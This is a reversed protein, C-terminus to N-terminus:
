PAEDAGIDFRTGRPRADGEFDTAPGLGVADKAPSTATIHYDRGVRDVFQPDVNTIGPAPGNSVISSLFTCPGAADRIASACTEQLIISSTVHLNANCSVACPASTSQAGADVITSFELEGLGQSLELARQATGFILLNKLHVKAGAAAVNIGVAGGSIVGGDVTLEGNSNVIVAATGLSSSIRLNRATVPGVVSLEKAAMLTVSELTLGNGGGIIAAGTTPGSLTVERVTLKKTSSIVFTANTGSTLRSGHGHVFVATPPTTTGGLSLSTQYSGNDLVFHNRTATLKTVGFGFSACPSAKTCMNDVPNNNSLYIISAEAVCTGDDGCAGSACEADLKCGRCAHADCVPASAACDTSAVCQVCAGADCLPTAGRGQCDANATCLACSGGECVPHDLSCDADVGCSAICGGRAPDCGLECQILDLDNGSSNCVLAQDARCATFQGPECTVAICAQPTGAIAGDEDCFPFAQDTCLGDACSQPNPVTCATGAAGVLLCVCLVHHIRM